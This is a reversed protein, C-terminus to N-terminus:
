SIGKRKRRLSREELSTAIVISMLIMLMGYFTDEFPITGMRIGLNEKDNYWVVPEDTFMGTLVGNVIFFPVLIFLYALYFRGMYRPRHNFHLWTLFFALLLFTVSTYLRHLNYLGAILLILILFSTILQQYPAFYDEKILNTVAFYSFICAYPICIFFMVEELPLDMLYIGLIYKKNFGWVGNMTFIQDWIIFFTTTIIMAPFVFRWKASFNADKRFSFIFPFIFSLINVALYLYKSEL